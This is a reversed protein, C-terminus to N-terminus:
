RGGESERGGFAGFDQFVSGRSFIGNSTLSLCWTPLFDGDIKATQRESEVVTDRDESEGLCNSVERPSVGPALVVKEVKDRHSVSLVQM